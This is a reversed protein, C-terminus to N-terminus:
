EGKSLKTVETIVKCTKGCFAIGIKLLPKNRDLDAGYRKQTIQALAKEANKYLDDEAGCAKFEFIFYRNSKEAFIDYRGDGSERNSLPRSCNVDDYASLLGLMFIHYVREKAREDNEGKFVALDYYSLRDSLFDELNTAFRDPNDANDFLTKIKVKGGSYLRTLIFDKWVRMLEKNPISLKSNLSSPQREDLALYGAQVLLSYFAEDGAELSLRQLSIRNDVAAEIQEGNLLKALELKREDNLLSVIIDMTGSMGWYCDFTKRFVSSMVSYTNYIAHGNVKIGNYWERLIAIEQGTMACLDIAEAETIGYDDTYVNDNFVDFTVLNNLGSLMSEHSIRMVGTLLAKNLYPNGKLGTSLFSTMFERIEDYNDSNYNNMLLNDYEDILIYSRKGTLEYVLETLIKLGDTSAGLNTKFSEYRYQFYDELEASKVYVSLQKYVQSNVQEKYGEASLGKFDFSFVPASNALEWAPSTEIYLGKFLHKFDTKDTLFCRLMDMNLSKGLRRQRAVLQVDSAENLFREIFRTKDVYLSGSTIMREFSSASLNIKNIDGVIM